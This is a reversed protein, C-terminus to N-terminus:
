LFYDDIEIFVRLKVGNVLAFVLAEGSEISSFQAPTGSRLEAQGEYRLLNAVDVGSENLKLGMPPFIVRPKGQEDSQVVVGAMEATSM